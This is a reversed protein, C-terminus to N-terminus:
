SRRYAKRFHKAHFIPFFHEIFGTIGFIIAAMFLGTLFIGVALGAVFEVMMILLTFIGILFAM